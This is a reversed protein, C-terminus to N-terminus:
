KKGSTSGSRITTTELRRHFDKLTYSGNNRLHLDYRYYDQIRGLKGYAALQVPHWDSPGGTKIDILIKRGSITGTIDLCGAIGLEKDCVFQEVWDPIFGTDIVFWLYAEIYPFYSKDKFDSYDAIGKNIAEIAKHILTGRIAHEKKFWTKNIYGESELIITVSDLRKGRDSFYLHKSEDFYLVEGSPTIGKVM